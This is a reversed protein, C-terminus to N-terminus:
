KKVDIINCRDQTSVLFTKVENEKLNYEKIIDKKIPVYGCYKFFVKLTDEKKILKGIRSIGKKYNNRRENYFNRLIEHTRKKKLIQERQYHTLSYSNYSFIILFISFLKM